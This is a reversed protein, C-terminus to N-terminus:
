QELEQNYKHVQSKYYGSLQPNFMRLIELEAEKLKKYEELQTNAVNNKQPATQSERKEEMERKRKSNEAELMKIEIDQQRNFFDNDMELNIIDTENEEMLQELEKLEGAGGLNGEKQLEDAMKRIEQRIMEQQAAMEAVEKSMGEGMKGPNMKGPKKGKELEKKMKEIQKALDKQKKKSSKMSPKPSGGGPKSCSGQGSKSNQQQQQMQQIIEDMLNALNNIATLAKQQNLASQPLKRQELEHVSYDMNKTMAKIEIEVLEGLQPVRTALAYLSDKIMESADELRKQEQTIVVVQPDTRDVTRLEKMVDEQEFSLELLNELLKRMAELDEGEQESSAMDLSEGMKDKMEQMKKAADKQKESSKKSDGKKSSEQSEKQDESIEEQKEEEFDMENPQDLEQNLSDLRKLEDKLQDFEENLKEQEEINEEDTIEEKENKEALEDQKKALEEMKDLAKEMGQELELQKFIELNRDLEKIMDEQNMEMKDLHKQIEEKNLKEMLKQLEEYLKKTEEDMLKEYLNELQKQKELIQENKSNQKDYREQHNKYKETTKELNKQLNRESEIINELKKQSEWDLNKKNLLDKKAAKIEKDLQQSEKTLDQMEKLLEDGETLLASDQQLSNLADIAFQKSKSLKYGNPQDNDRVEFVVTTANGLQDKNVEMSFADQLSNRNISIRKTWTSDVNTFRAKLSSFGYDDQISGVFYVYGMNTSDIQSRVDITPFNDTIVLVQSEFGTQFDGFSGKLDLTYSHDSLLTESYSLSNDSVGKTEMTEGNIRLLTASADKLEINWYLKSGAPLELLSPNNFTGREKRTHSPYEVVLAVDSVMPNPAVSISYSESYFKGAKFKYLASQTANELLFSFTGNNNNARYQIGDIDVFVSNPIDEGTLTVELNVDTGSNVKINGPIVEFNFPAIASYDVSYNVLQSAGETVARKNFTLLVLLLAVPILLIFANKKREVPPVAKSFEFPSLFETRSNISAMMLASQDNTQSFQLTNILKDGIESYHKGIYEAAEEQSLGKNIKFLRLLPDIVGFYLASLLILVLGYFLIFRIATPMQGYFILLDFFLFFSLVIGTSIIVGKLLRNFYFKKYFKELNNLLDQVHINKNSNM